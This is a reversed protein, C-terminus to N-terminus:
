CICRISQHLILDRSLLKIEPTTTPPGDQAGPNIYDAMIKGGIQIANFLSNEEIDIIVSCEGHGHDIITKLIYQEELIKFVEFTYNSCSIRFIPMMKEPNASTNM